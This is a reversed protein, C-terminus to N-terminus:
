QLDYAYTGRVQSLFFAPLLFPVFLSLLSVLLLSLLPFYNRPSAPSFRPAGASLPAAASQQRM